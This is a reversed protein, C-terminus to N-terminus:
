SKNQPNYVVRKGILDKSWTKQSPNHPIEGVVKFGAKSVVTRGRTQVEEKPDAPVVKYVRPTGGTLNAADSAYYHALDEHEAPAASAVEVGMKQPGFALPEGSRNKGLKEGPVIVDGTSLNASTGHYFIQGSRRDHFPIAM